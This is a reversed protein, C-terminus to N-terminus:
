TEAPHLSKKDEGCAHRNEVRLHELNGHFRSAGLSSLQDLLSFPRFVDVLDAVGVSSALREDIVVIVEVKTNDGESGGALVEGNDEIGTARVEPNDVDLAVSLSALSVRIGAEGLVAEVGGFGGGVDLVSLEEGDLVSRSGAVSVQSRIGEVETSDGDGVLGETKGFGDSFDESVLGNITDETESPGSESDVVDNGWDLVGEALEVLREEGDPEVSLGLDRFSSVGTQDGVTSQVGLVTVGVGDVGLERGESVPLEGNVAEGDSAVGVGLGGLDDGVSTSGPESTGVAVDVSDDRGGVGLVVEDISDVGDRAARLVKRVDDEGDTSLFVGDRLNFVDKIELESVSVTDESGEGHITTSESRGPDKTVGEDSGETIYVVNSVLLDSEGLSVM